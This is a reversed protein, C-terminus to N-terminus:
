FQCFVFCYLICIRSVLLFMHVSSSTIINLKCTVAVTHPPAPPKEPPPPPHTVLEAGLWTLIIDILEVGIMDLESM